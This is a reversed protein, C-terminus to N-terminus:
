GDFQDVRELLLLGGALLTLQGAPQDAGVEDDEVFKAVQRERLGATGQKEVQDALEVFLGARDDGGVEAEGFPGGDEAIGLHGRCREVSKGVAAVDDFSAVVAVTEAVVSDVGPLLGM